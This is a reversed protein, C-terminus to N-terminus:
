EEEIPAIFHSKIVIERMNTTLCAIEPIEIQASMPIASDPPNKLRIKDLHL